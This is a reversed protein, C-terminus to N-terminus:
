LEELSEQLYEFGKGLKFDLDDAFGVDVGKYRLMFNGLEKKEISFNKSFAVGGRRANQLSEFAEEKTPYINLLMNRMASSRIIERPINQRTGMILDRHYLGQKWRRVAARKAFKSIKEGGEVNLYGLPPLRLSFGEDTDLICNGEEGGGLATFVVDFDPSIDHIFVPEGGKMIVTDRLRSCAYDYNDYLLSM